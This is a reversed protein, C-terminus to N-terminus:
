GVSPRAGGARRRRAVALRDVVWELPGRGVLLAWATCRVITWLTIPWFPECTASAAFTARRRRAGGGRRDGVVVLQAAYATLPMAGVARLPLVVWTLFTRCLLLCAGIVALAFGGSGIM